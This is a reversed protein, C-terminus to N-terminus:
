RRNLLSQRALDIDCLNEGFGFAVDLVDQM